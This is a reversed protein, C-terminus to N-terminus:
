APFAAAAAAVLAAVVSVVTPRVSRPGSKRAIAGVTTASAVLGDAPRNVTRAVLSEPGAIATAPVVIVLDSVVVRARAVARAVRALPQVARQAQKAATLPQEPGIGRKGHIERQLRDLLPLEGVREM